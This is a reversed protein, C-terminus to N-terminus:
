KYWIPNSLAIKNLEAEVECRYYGNNNEEEINLSFEYEFEAEKINKLLIVKESKECVIGKYVIIKTIRGFEESSKAKIELRNINESISGM